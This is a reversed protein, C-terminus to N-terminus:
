HHTIFVAPRCHRLAAISMSSAAKVVREGKVQERSAKVFHMYANLGRKPKVAAEEGDETNAAVAAAALKAAPKAKPVAPKASAPKPAPAEAGPKAVQPKPAAPKPATQKPVNEKEEEEGAAAEVPPAPRGQTPSCLLLM